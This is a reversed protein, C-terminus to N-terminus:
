QVVDGKKQVEQIFQFAASRYLLLTILGSEQAAARGPLASGQAAAGNGDVSDGLFSKSRARRYSQRDVAKDIWTCALDWEGLGIAAVALTAPLVYRNKRKDELGALVKEADHRRGVAVYAWSLFSRLSFLGTAEDSGEELLPIGERCRGQRVYAIGLV